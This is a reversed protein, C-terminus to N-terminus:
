PKDVDPPKYLTGAVDVDFVFKAPFSLPAFPFGASLFCLGKVVATDSGDADGTGGPATFFEKAYPLTRSVPREVSEGGM